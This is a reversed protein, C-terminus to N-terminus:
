PTTKRQLIGDGEVAATAIALDGVKGALPPWSRVICSGQYSPNTASIVEATPQIAIAVAAGGVLPFLTADPGGAAYDQLFEIDAKWDILGSVRRRAGGSGMTTKDHVEGQYNINVQRVWDSLDVDNIKVKADKIVLEM